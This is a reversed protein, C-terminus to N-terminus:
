RLYDRHYFSAKTFILILFNYWTLNGVSVTVGLDAGDFFVGFGPTGKEGGLNIM